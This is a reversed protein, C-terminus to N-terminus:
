VTLNITRVFVQPALRKVADASGTRGAEDPDFAVLVRGKSGVTQIILREQAESLTSGMVAVVNRRGKQWLPFVGSFFGEVVILGDGAHVHERARHLNYLVLSKKFNAPFRYKDEGEPPEGPWRGVYAVLHEGHENHIPIVMRGHMSGRGAFHGIGFTAITEDTLGREKLYPHSPDINKLEFALPPNAPEERDIAPAPADETELDDEADTPPPNCAAATQQATRQRTDRAPRESAIGFWEQLLLAAQRRNSTRHGTAIGEFACVLDIVDGGKECGFCHWINREPPNQRL